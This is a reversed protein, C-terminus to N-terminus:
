KSQLLLIGKVGLGGAQWVSKAKVIYQVHMMLQINNWLGMLVMINWSVRISKTLPEQTWRVASSPVPFITQQMAAAAATKASSYVRTNATSVPIAPELVFFNFQLKACLSQLSTYQVTSAKILTEFIYSNFKLMCLLTSLKHM